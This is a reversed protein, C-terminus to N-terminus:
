QRRRPLVITFISGRGPESEVSIKGGHSKVVESVYSLGLGYGKVTHIDGTPVRFFKEFIKNKYEPPIGVGNDKVSLIVQEPQDKIMITIATNDGGYKLANDILNYLVATLHEESGELEFDFGEREYNFVTKRKEFVLRMSSIVQQIISDLNLHEFQINVGQDEFVSTKLIKDTMLTLRNLENQAIELYENTKQRDELANFNKLAELAVSVTAVPTKLEHTINSIFDNKIAMLKQQGRLNRYMVVFAAITLMTLFVSFLIQPTIKKILFGQVSPFSVSYSFFPNVRVPDSHFQRVRMASRREMREGKTVTIDFESPLGAERLASSFEKKLSDINISDAGLRLIFTQPSQDKEIRRVIPRLAHQISDKSQSQIFVEIQKNQERVGYVDLSTDLPPLPFGVSDSHFKRLFIRRSSDGRAIPELNRQIISDHMTIITTRFLSNTERRFIDGAEDYVSRLWFVQLLVLLIISSLM